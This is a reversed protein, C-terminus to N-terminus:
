TDLRVPFMSTFWGVTRSLDAGPVVGEERGHGELRILASSETVGRAQRWKAVALALGALLGDNVQGRFATPVVTLLAETVRAPLRVWIHDATDAVDLAPDLARRGLLPDPGDVMARWLPLEAVRTESAAEDQLAHTWRRVSTGVEPLVPEEGSSVRGWAAALDPLLIRWSVGDVVLHHLVVLLRGPAAAGPDFWVFQGMVGGAPDLRGTAADLERSASERWGEGWRGDCEVRHVLGAVDVSGPAAVELSWEDGTVLRSRLVDHRDFVAALTASLGAADIGAPLELVASMSFRGFGGGLERLYRSVPLVPLRGVGGGEFEELVVGADSGDTVAVQALEAVTRCEFIQRPSVEVGLGRARSVVQISRISDGGVAFFDDDVGVRELGLVEAYVGALVREVASGPARYEGGGFEPEPLASRDLKGNPALPLRDLMVLVSPVMFEPLRGAVFRRL